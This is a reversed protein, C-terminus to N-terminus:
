IIPDDVRPAEINQIDSEIYEMANSTKIFINSLKDVKSGLLSTYACSTEHVISFEARYTHFENTLFDKANDIKIVKISKDFKREIM